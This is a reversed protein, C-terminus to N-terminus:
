YGAKSIAVSDKVLGGCRCNNVHLLYPLPKSTQVLTCKAHKSIINNGMSEQATCTGTYLLQHQTLPRVRLKFQRDSKQSQILHSHKLWRSINLCVTAFIKCQVFSVNSTICLETVNKYVSLYRLLNYNSLLNMRFVCKKRAARLERKATETMSDLAM